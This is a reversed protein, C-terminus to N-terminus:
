LSYVERLERPLKNLITAGQYRVSKRFKETKVKPLCLLSKNGRTNKNYDIWNYKYPIQKGLQHLSKFVDIAVFRNRQSAIDIWSQASISGILRKARDQLLNLKENHTALLSVYIPYCYHIISNIISKYIKEAAVPTISPRIKALLRIM